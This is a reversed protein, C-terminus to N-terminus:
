DPPRGGPVLIVREPMPSPPAGLGNAPLAIIAEPPVGYRQAIATLTEGLRVRHLMGDVSPIDLLVGPRVEGDLLAAENNWRVTEPRLAFQRAISEITDGERATYRSFLPVQEPLRFPSASAQVRLVEAAESQTLWEVHQVPPAFESADEDACAVVALALIGILVGRM